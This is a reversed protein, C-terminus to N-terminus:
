KNNQCNASMTLIVIILQQSLRSFTRTDHNNLQQSLISTCNIGNKTQETLISVSKIDNNIATVAKQSNIDNDIIQQSLRRDSKIDHNSLQQSIRSVSNIGNKNKQCEASMRLVMVIENNQYDASFTFAGM